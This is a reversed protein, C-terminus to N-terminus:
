TSHTERSQGTQSTHAVYVPEYVTSDRTAPMRNDPRTNEFKMCTSLATGHTTHFDERKGMTSPVSGLAQGRPWMELGNKCKRM